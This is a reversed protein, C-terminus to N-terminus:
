YRATKDKGGSLAFRGDSSVAISTIGGSHGVFNASEKLAGGSALNWVKILGKYGGAIVKKGDPTVAIADVTGVTDLRQTLNKRSGQNVDFIAVMDDSKGGALVAGDGSFALSKLGWGQEGLDRVVGAPDGEKSGKLKITRPKSSAEGSGSAADTSAPTGSGGAVDLKKGLHKEIFEIDAQSIQNLAVSLYTGDPKELVVKGDKIAVFEAEIKFKGNSSTWERALLPTSGLAALITSALLFRLLSIRM